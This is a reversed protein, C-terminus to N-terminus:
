RERAQRQNGCWFPKKVVEVDTNASALEEIKNALDVADGHYGGVDYMVDVVESSIKMKADM